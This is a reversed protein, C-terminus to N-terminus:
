GEALISDLGSYMDVSETPYGTQAIAMEILYGASGYGIGIGVVISTALAAASMWAELRMFLSRGRREHAPGSTQIAPKPEFGLQIKEADALIAKSLSEPFDSLSKRASQFYLDIDLERGKATEDEKM